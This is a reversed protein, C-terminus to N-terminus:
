MLICVQFIILNICTSICCMTGKLIIANTLFSLKSQTCVGTSNAYYGDKCLCQLTGSDDCEAQVDSCQDSPQGATCTENLIIEVIFHCLFIFLHLVHKNNYVM